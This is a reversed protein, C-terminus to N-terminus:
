SIFLQRNIYNYNSKPAIPMLSDMSAVTINAVALNRLAREKVYWLGVYRGSVNRLQLVDCSKVTFM